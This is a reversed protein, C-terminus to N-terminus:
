QLWQVFGEGHLSSVLIGKLAPCYKVSELGLMINFNLLGRLKLISDLSRISTLVSSTLSSEGKPAYLVKVESSNDRGEDIRIGLPTTTYTSCAILRCDLGYCAISVFSRLQFIVKAYVALLQGILSRGARSTSLELKSLMSNSDCVARSPNSRRVARVALGFATSIPLLNMTVIKAKRPLGSM